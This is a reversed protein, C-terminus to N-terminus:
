SRAHPPQKLSFESPPSPLPKPPHCPPIEAAQYTRTTKIFIYILIIELFLFYRYQSTPILIFPIIAAVEAPTAALRWRHTALRYLWIFLILFNMAGLMPLFFAVYAQGSSASNLSFSFVNGLSGIYLGILNVIPRLPQLYIDFNSTFDFLQQLLGEEESIGERGFILMIQPRYLYFVSCALVYLWLKYDKFNVFLIILIALLGMSWRSLTYFIIALVAFRLCRKEIYLLIFISGAFVFIEKNLGLTLSVSFPTALFLSAVSAINRSKKTSIYIILLILANILLVGGEEQFYKQIYVGYSNIIVDDYSMEYYASSDPLIKAGIDYIYAGFYDFGLLLWTTHFLAALFFKSKHTM